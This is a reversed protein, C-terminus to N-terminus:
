SGGEGIPQEVIQEGTAAARIAASERDTYCVRTEGTGVCYLIGGVGQIITPSVGGAPTSLLLLRGDDIAQEAGSGIVFRISGVGAGPVLGAAQVRVRRVPLDTVDGIIHPSTVSDGARRRRKGCSNCGM